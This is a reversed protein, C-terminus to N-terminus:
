LSDYADDEPNDWIKAFTPASVSAAARVLERELMSETLDARADDSMSGIYAASATQMLVSAPRWVRM